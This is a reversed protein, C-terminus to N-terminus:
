KELDASAILADLASTIAAAGDDSAPGSWRCAFSSDSTRARNWISDSNARIASAYQTQPAARQLLMLNRFFIGKFQVTDASCKPETRDHMVGDRDSLKVIAASAIRAAERKPEPDSTVESLEVLGGLVVGQNYSWTNRGNNRCEPTLGDNVLFDENIMGSHDFWAREREAWVIYAERERGKSRAALHAAVSLFLENAIANKYHRDKKWWIGGGCVDDWGGTMDSFISQAMQLYRREHTVDYAQIWALAWWGEDDYFENRFLRFKLQAKTFTNRLMSDYRQSRDIAMANAIVTTSNAANWWGETRWLGRSMDYRTQLSDVADNVRQTPSPDGMPGASSAQAHLGASMATSLALVFCVLRSGFAKLLLM